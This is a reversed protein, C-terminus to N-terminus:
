SMWIGKTNVEQPKNFDELKSFYNFVEHYNKQLYTVFYVENIDTDQLEIYDVACEILRPMVDSIKLGGDGTGFFPMVVRTIPDRTENQKNLADIEKLVNTVCRGLLIQSVPKFGGGPGLPTVAVAHVVYQIRNRGLSGPTTVVVQAGPLNGKIGKKIQSLAIEIPREVEDGNEDYTAGFANLAASISKQEPRAMDLKSNESNVLVDVDKIEAINGTAIGICKEPRRKLPFLIHPRAPLVDDDNPTRSSKEEELVHPNSPTDGKLVEILIDLKPRYADRDQFDVYQIDILGFYPSDTRQHIIPIIDKKDAIYKLWEKKCNQSAVSNPSIVAVMKTCKDLEKGITDEWSKGPVINVHDVFTTIGNNQLDGVLKDVFYDDKSSHSIFVRAM